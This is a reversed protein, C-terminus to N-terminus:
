HGHMSSTTIIGGKLTYLPVQLSFIGNTGAPINQDLFYGENQSTDERTLPKVDYTGSYVNEM